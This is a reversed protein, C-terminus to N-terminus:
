PYRCPLKVKTSVVIGSALVVLNAGNTNEVFSPDLPLIQDSVVNLKPCLGNLCVTGSPNEGIAVLLIM